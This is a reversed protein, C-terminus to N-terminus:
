PQRLTRIPPPPTSYSFDREHAMEIRALVPQGIALPGKAYLTTDDPEYPGAEAHGAPALALALVITAFLSLAAVRSM